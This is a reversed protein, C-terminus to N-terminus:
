WCAMAHFYGKLHIDERPLGECEVQSSPDKTIWRGAIRGHELLVVVFLPPKSLALEDYEFAICRRPGLSDLLPPRNWERGFAEYAQFEYGGVEIQKLDHDPFIDWACNQNRFPPLEDTLLSRDAVAALAAGVALAAALTTARM